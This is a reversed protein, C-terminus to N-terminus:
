KNLFLNVKRAYDIYGEQNLDLTNVLRLIEEEPVKGSCYQELARELAEPSICGPPADKDAFLRFARLVDAKKYPLDQPKAMVQLFEQFNIQGDGTRDIEAVMSELEEQRVKMGLLEMLGKVEEITLAGGKDRDMMDFVEKLDAVEQATLEMHQGQGESLRPPMKTYLFAGYTVLIIYWYAPSPQHKCTM